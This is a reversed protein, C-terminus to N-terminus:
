FLTRLRVGGIVVSSAAGNDAPNFIVQLDPTVYSHPTVAVRYFAELGYQDRQGSATPEAWSFALGVRDNSQGFPKELGAGLALSQRIKLGAGYGYSYRGFPVIRGEPGVEQEVHLAVGRGSPVDDLRRRDAVWATVFYHGTGTKGEGRKVGLSAAYFFEGREPNGVGNNAGNADHVGALIYASEPLAAAAAAGFGAAPVPMAPTAALTTNLFSHNSSVYRGRNWINVPKMRGVRYLLGDERSGQEWYLEVLSFAQKNFGDATGWVSGIQSGLAGPGIKTFPERWETAFSIARPWSEGKGSLRLKGFFDLDGSAAQRQNDPPARGAGQYLATYNMGIDLGYADRLHRDIPKWAHHIPELPDAPLISDIRERAEVLKETINNPSDRFPNHDGAPEETVPPAGLATMAFIPTAASGATRPRSWDFRYNVGARLLHGNFRTAVTTANVLVLASPSAYAVPDIQANTLRLTGLDYHLYEMKASLGQGLAIEAGAGVAFGMLNRYLDGEIEAEDFASPTLSQTLEARARAGGFALGGTAYVLAEPAVAFGLRGRVTALYDLRRQLTASTAAVAASGPAAGVISVFGGGGQIEAGQLDAEVGAVLQEAFQWNYGIQGGAFLGDLRTGSIGSAGIASPAGFGAATFDQLNTSTAAMSRTARWSYGFGAGVYLGTWTFVPAAARADGQQAAAPMFFLTAATALPAVRRGPLLHKCPM